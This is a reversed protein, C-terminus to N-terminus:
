RSPFDTFFRKHTADGARQARVYVIDYDYPISKDTSIHAVNVDLKQLFLQEQEESVAPHCDGV